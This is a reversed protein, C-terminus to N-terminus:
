PKPVATNSSHDSEQAYIGQVSASTMVLIAPNGKGILMGIVSYLIPFVM